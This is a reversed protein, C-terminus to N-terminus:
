QYYYPQPYYPDHYPPYGGRMAHHPAMVRGRGRMAGGRHKADELDYHYAEHPPGMPYGYREHPPYYGMPPLRGRPPPIRPPQQHDPGENYYHREENYGQPPGRKALHFDDRARVAPGGRMSRQAPGGRERKVGSRIEPAEEKNSVRQSNEPRPPAGRKGREGRAPPATM